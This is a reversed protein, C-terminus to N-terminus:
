NNGYSSGRGGIYCGSPIECFMDDCYNVSEKVRFIVTVYTM